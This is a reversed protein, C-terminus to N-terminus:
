YMIMHYAALWYSERIIFAIRGKANFVPKKKTSDAFQPYNSGTTYKFWELSLTSELSCPYPESFITM